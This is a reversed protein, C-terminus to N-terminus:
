LSLEFRHVSFSSVRTAVLVVYTSAKAQGILHATSIEGKTVV